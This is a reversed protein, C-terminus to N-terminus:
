LRYYEILIRANGVTASALTITAALQKGNATTGVDLFTNSHNLGTSTLDNEAITMLSDSVSLNGVSVQPDTGDFASTVLIRCSTVISNSPVLNGINLVVTGTGTPVDAVSIDLNVAKQYGEIYINGDTSKIDIDGTVTMLTISGDDTSVAFGDASETPVFSNQGTFTQDGDIFADGYSANLKNQVNTTLMAETITENANTYSGVLTDGYVTTAHVDKFKKSASGIDNVNSTTPEINTAVGIFNINEASITTEYVVETGFENWRLYKNKLEDPVSPVMGTPDYTDTLGLLTLTPTPISTPDLDDYSLRKNYFTGADNAILVEFENLPPTLNVDSNLGISMTAFVLNEKNITDLPDVILVDGVERISTEDPFIFGNFKLDGDTNLTMDGLTTEINMGTDSHINSVSTGPFLVDRGDGANIIVGVDDTITGGGISTDGLDPAKLTVVDNTEEVDVYTTQISNELRNQIASTPLLGWEMANTSSNYFLLSLNPTTIESEPYSVNQLYVDGATSTLILDGSANLEGDTGAGTNLVVPAVTDLLVSNANLTFSDVVDVTVLNGITVVLNNDADITVNDTVTAVKATPSVSPSQITDLDGIAIKPVDIWKSTAVDWSLVYGDTPAPVNTDTLSTLTGSTAVTALGSIDTSPIQEKYEFEGSAGLLHNWFFYGSSTTPTSIGSLDSFDLQDAEWDGSANYRLVQGVSPGSVVVDALDNLELATIISLNVADSPDIPDGLNRIRPNAALTNIPGSPSGEYIDQDIGFNLDWSLETDDWLIGAHAEVGDFWDRVVISGSGDPMVTPRPPTNAASGFTFTPPTVYGTGADTITVASGFAVIGGADASVTGTATTGSPPSEFVVPVTTSPTFGVGPDTVTATDVIDSNLTSNGQPEKPEEPVNMLVNKDTISLKTDANVVTNGAVNLDGTVDLDGSVTLTPNSGASPVSIILGETDTIDFVVESTDLDTVKTFTLNNSFNINESM